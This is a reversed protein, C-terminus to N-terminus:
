TGLEAVIEEGRKVAVLAVEATRPHCEFGDCTKSTSVRERDSRYRHGHRVLGNRLITFPFVGSATSDTM